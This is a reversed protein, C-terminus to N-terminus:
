REARCVGSSPVGQSSGIGTWNTGEFTPDDITALDSILSIEVELTSQDFSHTFIMFFFASVSVTRM